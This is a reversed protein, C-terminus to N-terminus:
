SKEKFRRAFIIEQIRHLAKKQIENVETNFADIEGGPSSFVSGAEFKRRALERCFAEGILEALLMGGAETEVGELGSKIYPTVSPFKVFIKIVGTNRDYFTRQPPQELEDPQIDSIFGGGRGILIKERRGKGPPAVKVKSFAVKKGLTVFLTGEVNEADGIVKFRRYWIEPYKHYRELKVISALPRIYRNDSSIFAETGEEKVVETPAYISFERPIDKQINAREPKVVLDTIGPEPEIPLELELEKKAIDNLLSCVEKLMKRTTEKVEKEPRRSLERKKELIFPELVKEISTALAQCYEHRWELGARNYDIIGTEGRRLREELDECIAEGWFYLAAPENEFRFLQNDLIAGKTKILIGALGYPNYRPSDLPTPSEYIRVKVRDGYGPLNVVEEKVKKGKPYCFSLPANLWDLGRKVDHFNLEIKRNPSAMIDRLAYHRQIQEKFKTYEPIKIKENTVKIEIETGNPERTDQIAQLAEDDYQPKKLRENYWLKTKCLKGSKVTKIEGEGLAIITEKLGRGFMGRVSRGAEFGSTTAGFVIARELEERTMGEAFDKVVLRECNGGKRRWVSILVRGQTKEGKEELRKYSDDSNTVLEVIADALNKITAKALQEVIRSDIPLEKALKM